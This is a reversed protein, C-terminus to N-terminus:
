RKQVRPMANLRLEVDRKEEPTNVNIFAEPYDSFDVQALRHRNYWTDIKRGGDQLYALLSDLLESRILAFVPQLRKGDTAVCIDAQEDDMAAQLRGALCDPVFPSDCPVALVRGSNSAKIGSAIGVLPGFYGDIIDEVVPHGYRRYSNINRNANIIIGEVQPALAELIYEIMPQGNLEILGKDQGGMRRALGGALIVATEPSKQLGNDTMARTQSDTM